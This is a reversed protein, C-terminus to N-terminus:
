KTYLFKELLPAGNYLFAIVATMIAFASALSGAFKAMLLLLTFAAMGGIIHRFDYGTGRGGYKKPMVDSAVTSGITVFACTVITDDPSAM